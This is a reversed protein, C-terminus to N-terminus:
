QLQVSGPHLVRSSRLVRLLTELVSFTDLQLPLAFTLETSSPRQSISVAFLFYIYIFIYTYIFRLAKGLVIRQEGQVEQVQM